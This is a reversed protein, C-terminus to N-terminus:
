SMVAGVSIPGAAQEVEPRIRTEHGVVRANAHPAVDVFDVVIQNGHEILDFLDIRADFTQEHRTVHGDFDFACGHRAAVIGHLAVRDLSQGLNIAAVPDCM